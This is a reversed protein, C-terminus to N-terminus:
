PVHINSGDNGIAYLTVIAANRYGNKKETSQVSVKHKQWKKDSKRVYTLPSGETWIGSDQLRKLAHLMSIKVGAIVGSSDKYNNQIHAWPAAFYVNTPGASVAYKTAGVGPDSFGIAFDGVYFKNNPNRLATYLRDRQSQNLRKLAFYADIGQFKTTSLYKQKNERDLYARWGIAGVVGTGVAGSSSCVSFTTVDYPKVTTAPANGLKGSTFWVGTGEIELTLASANVFTLQINRYNDKCAIAGSLLKGFEQASQLTNKLYDVTVNGKRLEAMLGSVDGMSMSGASAVPPMLALSLLSMNATFSFRQRFTARKKNM